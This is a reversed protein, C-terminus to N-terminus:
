WAYASLCSFSLVGYITPDGLRLVRVHSHYFCGRLRIVLGLCKFMLIVVGWLRTVFGLCEFMLIVVVGWLRTVLGLCEFM